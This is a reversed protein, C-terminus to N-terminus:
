AVVGYWGFEEYQWGQSVLNEMEEESATYHHAGTLGMTYANPNYLRHLGVGQADDSYWGIGEGTWGISVLYDYEEKSTTYHHDGLAEHSNYLRYVPTESSVPAVWAEGEYSWGVTVLNDREAANATYFHEGSNPNYLRYMVQTETTDADDGTGQGSKSAAVNVTLDSQVKTIRYTFPLDKTSVDKLNKFTGAIDNASLGPFSYGDAVVVTFNVQGDGTSDPEGTDSNRSVASTVGTETATAYDQTHYVNVTVGEGLNFSVAYGEDAVADQEVAEHGECATDTATLVSQTQTAGCTTCTFTIVGDAESGDNWSHTWANGYQCSLSGAGTSIAYSSTAEPSSYFVYSAGKPAVAQYIIAGNSSSKVSVLKGNGLNGTYAKYGQSGSAPTIYGMGRCGAAFVTAGKISM